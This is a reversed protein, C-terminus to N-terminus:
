RKCTIKGVRRSDLKEFYQGYKDKEEQNISKREWLQAIERKQIICSRNFDIFSIIFECKQTHAFTSSTSAFSFLCFFFFNSKREYEVGGRVKALDPSEVTRGNATIEKDLSSLFTDM